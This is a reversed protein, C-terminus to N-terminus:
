QKSVYNVRQIERTWKQQNGNVSSVDIKFYTINSIIKTLILISICKGAFIDMIKDIFM